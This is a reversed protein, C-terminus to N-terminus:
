HRQGDRTGPAKEAVELCRECVGVMGGVAEAKPLGEMIHELVEAGEVHLEFVARGPEKFQDWPVGGKKAAM